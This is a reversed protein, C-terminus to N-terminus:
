LLGHKRRKDQCRWDHLANSRLFHMPDPSSDCTAVALHERIEDGLQTKALTGKVSLGTDDESMADWRGAVSDAKHMWFMAPLSGNAGHEALSSKFAGPLVVDGGLDVNGFVSGHGEIQRTKLSKLELPVALRTQM